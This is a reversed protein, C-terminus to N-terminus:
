SETRPDRPTPPPAPRAPAAFGYRARMQEVEAAAQAATQPIRPALQIIAERASLTRCNAAFRESECAYPADPDNVMHFRLVALESYQNVTIRFDYIQLHTYGAAVTLIAAKYIASDQGFEGRSFGNALSRVQWSNEDIRTIRQGGIIGGANGGGYNTACGSLAVCLATLAGTLVRTM